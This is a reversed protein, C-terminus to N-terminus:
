SRVLRKSLPFLSEVYDFFTGLYCEFDKFVGTSLNYLSSEEEAGPGRIAFLVDGDMRFRAFELGDSSPFPGMTFLHQWSKPVGSDDDFETVVWVDFSCEAKEWDTRRVVNALCEKYVTIAWDPEFKIEPGISNQPENFVMFVETSFNFSLISATDSLASSVPWYCVGNLYAEAFPGKFPRVLTSPESLSKWSNTTLSYVEYSLIGDDSCNGRVIKFDNSICDFGFGILNLQYLHIPNYLWPAVAKFERTAPNWLGLDRLGWIYCVLGKVCGVFLGENILHPASAFSPATDRVLDPKLDLPVDGFQKSLICVQLNNDFIDFQPGWCIFPIDGDAKCIAYQLEYHRKIFNVDDILACWSKCVCRLRLLQRVPLRLLIEVLLDEPLIEEDDFKVNRSEDKIFISLNREM